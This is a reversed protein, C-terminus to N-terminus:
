EAAAHCSATNKEWPLDRCNSDDFFGVPMLKFGCTICPQIPFDEPRPMHHLGFVHWAVIDQDVIPRDDAIFAPLGDSGDCGNVFEGAPFREEADFATVWLDNFTYGARRGSPGDPSIFPTVTSSPMLKYATPAGVHNVRDSSKFKWYRHTSPDAKRAGGKETELVTEHQRYANGYPNAPGMPEAYTNCEVASNADGDVAMDLRACFTHQHIQGLVGPAVEAGYPGPQGPICAATNIVGTAKMEFEITGDLHLYWYYGYEYNGVTAITSIVMRRARRTETRDLRFDYHKWLIGMDEEHLCIANKITEAEGDRGNVSADIYQIAGLCDCGLELSNVLRGIGYEGVDFVNKRPHAGEPSGYPVMMEAISARYMIPRGCFQIDHLTLGERANFGIRLDWEHWTLHHGDLTFSVGDPQVVNIPRLDQRVSAQLTHDYNVEGRPIPMDGKDFVEIVEGTDIDVTVNLGEIPHAYLNDMPHNRVWCFAHSIRRGEEEPVGFNGASWPDTCVLSLDDLGRRKCAAIFRPDAKIAEEIEMFEIPAIMPIADPLYKQSLVKGESLSVRCRTVGRRDRFYANVWAERSVKAGPTYTRVTAKDPEALEIMEFCAKAGNEIEARVIEAAKTIEEATLPSLPHLETVSTMGDM